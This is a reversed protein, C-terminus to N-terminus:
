ESPIGAAAGLVGNLANCTELARWYLRIGEALGAADYPAIQPHECPVPQIVLPAPPSAACATLLLMLPALMLGRLSRGSLKISAGSM